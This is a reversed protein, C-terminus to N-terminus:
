DNSTTLVPPFGQARAKEVDKFYQEEVIERLDLTTIDGLNKALSFNSWSSPNESNTTPKQKSM